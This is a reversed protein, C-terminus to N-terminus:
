KKFFIIGKILKDRAELYRKVHENSPLFANKDLLKSHSQPVKAPSPM